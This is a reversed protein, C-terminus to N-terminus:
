ARTITVVINGTVELPTEEIFFVEDGSGEFITEGSMTVTVKLNAYYSSLYSEMGITSGESLITSTSGGLSCYYEGNIYLYVSVYYSPLDNSCEVKFTYGVKKVVKITIDGNIIYNGYYDQQVENEADNTYSVEFAYYYGNGADDSTSISLYDGKYLANVLSEVEAENIKYSIDIGYENEITVTLPILKEINITIEVNSGIGSYSDFSYQISEGSNYGYTSDLTETKDGDKIIITAVYGVKTTVSFSITEGKIFTETGASTISVCSKYGNVYFSKIGEQADSSLENVKVSSTEANKFTATLTVDYAPMVFTANRLSESIVVNIDDHGVVSITDIEYFGSTPSIGVTVTQGEGFSTGSNLTIRGKTTDMSSDIEVKYTVGYNFSINVDSGDSPMTISVRNEYSSWSTTINATSDEGNIKIGKVYFGEKVNFLLYFSKGPAAGTIATSSNNDTLSVKSSDIAECDEVTIKGCTGVEFIIIIDNSPMTFSIYDASPILESTGEIGYVKISKIYDGSDKATVKMSISTGPIASEIITNGSSTYSSINVLDLNGYNIRKEGVMEGEIKYTRNKEFSSVSLSAVDNNFSFSDEKWNSEIDELGEELYKISSVVYGHKVFVKPSVYTYKKDAEYGYVSVYEDNEFSITHGDESETNSSYVIAIDLDSDPVEFEVTTETNDSENLVPRYVKDNIHVYLGNNNYSLSWQSSIVLKETAGKYLEDGENLSFTLSKTNSDTKISSVKVSATFKPTLTVNNEPMIFSYSNNEEVEKIELDEDDATIGDFRYGKETVVDITVLDGLITKTTSVFLYGGEVKETKVEFTKSTFSADIVVNSAPMTFSYTNEEGETLSLNDINTTIGDFRYGSNAAYTVTIKDGVHATAPSVTVSGGQISSAVIVDYSIKEFTADIVVDRGPMNFKYKSGVTIPSIVVGEVESGITKLEYGKNATVDVIISTGMVAKDVSFNISGNAISSASIGYSNLTFEANVTINCAPMVFTYALKDSDKVESFTVSSVDSELKVFGYGENASPYVTITAGASAEELSFSLSGGVIAKNASISYKNPTFEANVTIDSAPMVFTYEIKETTDVQSFTVSDVNSSFSVFSYGENATAYVSITTGAVAEASSFSISGGVIDSAASVHYSTPVATTTPATTSGSTTPNENQVCGVLVLTFLLPLFQKKM